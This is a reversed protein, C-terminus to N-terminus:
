FAAHLGLRINRPRLPTIQRGASVNIPNGLAFRNGTVDAINAVDVALGWRGADLRIAASVDAYNGQELSAFPGVGLSSRGVFRATAEANLVLNENLKMSYSISGHASTRPIDPLEEPEAGFGPAPRSLKSDNVFTTIEAVLGPVPMWNVSAEIGYIKGDGVNATFPL